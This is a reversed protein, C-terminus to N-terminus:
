LEPEADTGELDAATTDSIHRWWLILGALFAESVILLASALILDSGGLPSTHQMYMFVHLPQILAVAFLIPFMESGMWLRFLLWVQVGALPLLYWVSASHMMMLAWLIPSGGNFQTVVDFASGIGNLRISAIHTPIEHLNLGLMAAGATVVIFALLRKVPDTVGGIMADVPDLPDPM